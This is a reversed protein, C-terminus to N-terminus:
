RHEATRQALIRGFGLHRAMAQQHPSTVDTARGAAAVRQQGEPLEDHVPDGVHNVVLHPGDASLL